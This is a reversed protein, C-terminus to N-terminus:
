KKARKRAAAPLSSKGTKMSSKFDVEKWAAAPRHFTWFHPKHPPNHSPPNARLGNRRATHSQKSGRLESRTHALNPSHMLKCGTTERQNLVLSRLLFVCRSKGVALSCFCLFLFLPLAHQLFLLRTFAISNHSFVVISYHTSYVLSVLHLM